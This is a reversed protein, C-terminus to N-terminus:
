KQLVLQRFAKALGSFSSDLSLFRIYTAADPARPSAISRAATYGSRANPATM